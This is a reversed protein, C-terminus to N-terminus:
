FPVPSDSSVLLSNSVDGSVSAYITPALLSASRLGSDSFLIPVSELLQNPFTMPSSHSALLNDWGTAGSLYHGFLKGYSGCLVVSVVSVVLVVHVVSAVPAVRQFCVPQCCLGAVGSSWASWWSWM